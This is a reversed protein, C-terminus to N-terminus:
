PSTTYISRVRRRFDDDLAPCDSSTTSGRMIEEIQANFDLADVRAKEEAEEIKRASREAAVASAANALLCNTFATDNRSINDQAQKLAQELAPVKNKAKEAEVVYMGVRGVVLLLGVGLISALVMILKINM